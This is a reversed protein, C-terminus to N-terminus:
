VPRTSMAAAIDYVPFSIVAVFVTIDCLLSNATQAQARTAVHRSTSSIVKTRHTIDCNEYRCNIERHVIDCSRHGCPRYPIMRLAIDHRKTRFRVGGGWSLHTWAVGCGGGRVAAQALSERAGHATRHRPARAPPHLQPRVHQAAGLGSLREVTEQRRPVLPSAGPVRRAAARQRGRRVVGLSGSERSAVCVCSACADRARVFVM